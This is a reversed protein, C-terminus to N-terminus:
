AWAYFKIKQVQNNNATKFYIILLVYHRYFTQQVNVVIRNPHQEKWKKLATKSRKQLKRYGRSSYPYYNRGM